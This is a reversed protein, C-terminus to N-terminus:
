RKLLFSIFEATDAGQIIRTYSWRLAGHFWCLLFDVLRCQAINFADSINSILAAMVFDCQM